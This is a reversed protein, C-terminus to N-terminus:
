TLINDIRRSKVIKILLFIYPRRVIDYLMNVSITIYLLFM